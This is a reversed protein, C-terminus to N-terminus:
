NGVKGEKWGRTVVMRGAEIFRVIKSVMCHRVKQSQSVKTLMIDEVNVWTSVHTLIEKKRITSYHEM